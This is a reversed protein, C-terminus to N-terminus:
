LGVSQKRLRTLNSKFRNLSPGTVSQDDLSNWLNDV